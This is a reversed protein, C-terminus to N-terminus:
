KIRRGITYTRVGLWPALETNEYYPSKEKARQMNKKGYSSVCLCHTRQLWSVKDKKRRTGKNYRVFPFLKLFHYIIRVHVPIM